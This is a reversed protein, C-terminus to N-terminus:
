AMLPLKAHHDKVAIARAAQRMRMSRFIAGAGAFTPVAFTIVVGEQMGTAGSM